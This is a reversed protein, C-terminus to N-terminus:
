ITFDNEERIHVAEQFVNKIVRLILGFFAAAFAIVFGWIRFFGFIGFLVAVGYCCWSLIRLLKVNQNIFIHHYKINSLLRNLMLLAIFAPVLSAYLIITFPLMIEPKECAAAYWKAFPVIFFAALIIAAFILKVLVSSLIVSKKQCWM